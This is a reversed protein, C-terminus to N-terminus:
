HSNPLATLVKKELRSSAQARAPIAILLSPYVATCGCCFVTTFSEKETETHREINRKRDRERKKVGSVEGREREREAARAKGKVRKTQSLPSQRQKISWKM